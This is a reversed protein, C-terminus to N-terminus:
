RLPECVKLACHAAAALSFDSTPMTLETRICFRALLTVGESLGILVLESHIL